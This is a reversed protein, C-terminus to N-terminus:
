ASLEGAGMEELPRMPIFSLESRVLLHQKRQNFVPNLDRSSCLEATDSGLAEGSCSM